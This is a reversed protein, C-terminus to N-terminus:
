DLHFMLINREKRAPVLLYIYKNILDCKVAEFVDSINIKMVELM